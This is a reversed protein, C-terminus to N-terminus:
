HIPIAEILKRTYNNGPNAYLADAENIDVLRGQYMVMVRDSMYKVVSLDHSIFIYTLGFEEKLDNLLNLVQAQVSVDLASVSEDCVIFDPHMVLARAICIRQRQGGSFEHPYRDFHRAELGVKELLWIIRDKRQKKGELVGHVQMPEMLASGISIGPTLSAYPDQFIIQFRTRLKRLEKASLAALNIGSYVVQGEGPRVLQMISRGLTTKGCGSEGVLGLTEGKFVTFSVDNVATFSRTPRGWWNRGTVFSVKLNKVALLPESAYIKEHRVLRRKQTLSLNKKWIGLSANSLFDDVIALREPREGLPPRCAILAKTYPHDPTKFLKTARGQEVVNGLRMVSVRASLEKVVGLDHSIFLISMQHKLQLSQMLELIGKQVTVDLATTPEDAILMLPDCAMAMAIMVRQKQGGSLEHPWANFAKLPDDLRVENFLEMVRDRALHSSMRKHWLLSEMVQWGCRRVPNLSTMPEQFVMSIYRGRISEMASAPIKLLDSPGMLPHNFWIEGSIIHASKRNLLGMIALATVSKGSGSEGVLGHTEGSMIDLNVNETAMQLGDDTTFSISLNRVSILHGNTMDATTHLSM